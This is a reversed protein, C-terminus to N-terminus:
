KFIYYGKGLELNNISNLPNGTEYFGDFNKIIIADPYTSFPLPTDSPVGILNWGNQLPAILRTEVSGTIEITENISNYVLYAKGLEITKLSNFAAINTISYFGDATKVQTANPFVSSVEAITPNLYLSVLNWGATLTITQTSCAIKGTNGGVCVSCDDLYATGGADGNCDLTPSNTVEAQVATRECANGATIKWDYWFAYYSNTAIWTPFTEYIEIVDTVGYPFAGAEKDRWLKGTTGVMDIYYGTGIPVSVNMIIVQKGAGVTQSVSEILNDSADRVNIVVTQAGDTFVTIEDITLKRLVNFYYRVTNDANYYGNTTKDTNGFNSTIGNADEVFFLTTANVTPSYTDGSHLLTGEELAEYWNYTSTGNVSLNATGPASITTGNVSLLNSNITINDTVDSCGNASVTVSYTGEAIVDITRSTEGTNWTYTVGPVNSSGADLTLISPTCLTADSGLDLNLSATVTVKASNICGVSDAVVKYEGASTAQITAGTEGLIEVNDKYWTFTRDTTSVNTQIEVSSAGCLSQTEGLNPIECASCLQSLPIPESKNWRDQAPIIGTNPVNGEGISPWPLSGFFEPKSSLYLSNELPSVPINDITGQVNNGLLLTGIVTNDRNDSIEAPTILENGVINQNHSYSATWIGKDTNIRNRFLTNCPGSPGWADSITARGVINGEFLNFAPYHGHLSIGAYPNTPDSDCTANTREDFSYNYAYVNRSAGEKSILPHRLDHFINDEILCESTHKETLTGYGAGGGGCDDAMEFECERIEINRSNDMRVHYRATFYSHVRRIWCNNAYYFSFNNNLIGTNADVRELYFNEFGIETIPLVKRMRMEFSIDYSFTFTRDVTITNGNIASIKMLQGKITPAWDVNDAPDEEGHLNPDNEQEIEIDDGVSFGSADSVTFTNGGLAAITTITITAGVNGGMYFMDGEGGLDFLLKTNVPSEGRIARYSPVNITSNFKYTGNPFYLVENDNISNLATQVAASVDTAGTNDIGFESVANREESLCPIEGEYGAINWETTRNAPINQAQSYINVITLLLTISFLHKM